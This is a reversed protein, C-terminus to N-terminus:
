SPTDFNTTKQLLFMIFNRSLIRAAIMRTDQIGLGDSDLLMIDRLIDRTHDSLHISGDFVRRLFHVQELASIRLEGDLWFRDIGGGIDQNGYDFARVYARM